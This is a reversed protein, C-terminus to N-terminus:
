PQLVLSFIHLLSFEYYLIVYLPYLVYMNQAHSLKPIYSSMYHTYYMCTKPMRFNQFILHCITPIICVHKPCASTKPYLIVYLPYLVYMNQAHPLKPIYSSMYHTYYMCTKPMRFNQFILDCITPIICVHKPCVFTKSYLIVYLPYLVYMNQAYSLKPIYSSMYHTYYMCTKPMRFNQFVLYCVTPIISVYTPM